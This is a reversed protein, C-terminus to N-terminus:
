EVPQPQHDAALEALFQEYERQRRQECGPNLQDMVTTWGGGIIAWLLTTDFTTATDIVQRHWREEFSVQDAPPLHAFVDPGTAPIHNIWGKVEIDTRSPRYTRWRAETDRQAEAAAVDGGAVIWWSRILATLPTPDFSRTVYALLQRFETEFKAQEHPQLMAYVAPGTVEVDSMTSM